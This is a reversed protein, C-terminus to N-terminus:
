RALLRRLRSEDQAGVLREVPDGDVFIVFTPVGRVGYEAALANHADVDVKVVAAGTEAAVREIVPEMMKCPGCWDAYFDALVVDHRAVFEDLGGTEDISVPDDPAAGEDAGSSDGTREQLEKRKRDRIADLDSDDTM